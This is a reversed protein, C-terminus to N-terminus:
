MLTSIKPFKTLKLLASKYKIGIFNITDSNAYNRQYSLHSFSKTTRLLSSNAVCAKQAYGKHMTCMECYHHSNFYENMSLLMAGALNDCSLSILTGKM